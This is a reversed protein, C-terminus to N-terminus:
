ELFIIEKERDLEEEYENNLVVFDVCLDEVDIGYFVREVDVM